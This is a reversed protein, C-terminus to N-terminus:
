KANSLKSAIRRLKDRKRETAAASAAAVAGDDNGEEGEQEEEEGEAEKKSSSSSLVYSSNGARSPVPPLPAAAGAEAAVSPDAGTASAAAAAAESALVPSSASSPEPKVHHHIEEKNDSSEFLSLLGKGADETFRHLRSSLSDEDKPPVAVAAVVLVPASQAPHHAVVVAPAPAPAAASVFAVPAAAVSAVRPASPKKSMPLSASKEKKPTKLKAELEDGRLLMARRKAATVFLAKRVYPIPLHLVFGGGRSLLLGESVAEAAKKEIFSGIKPLNAINGMGGLDTEVHLEVLPTECFGITCLPNVGRPVSLAGRGMIKVFRVTATVPLMKQFPMVISSAITISARGTWGISFKAELALFETEKTDIESVIRLMEDGLDFQTM